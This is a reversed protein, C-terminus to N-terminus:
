LASPAETVGATRYAAALPAIHKRKTRTAQWLDYQTQMNLWFDPSTGFAESLKLAM